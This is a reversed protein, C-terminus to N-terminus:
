ETNNECQSIDTDCCDETFCYWDMDRKDICQGQACIEDYGCYDVLYTTKERTCRSAYTGPNLCKYKVYDNVVHGNKSCYLKSYHDLGCTADRSCTVDSLTTTTIRPKPTEYQATPLTTVTTSVMKKLCDGQGDICEFDGTCKKIFDSDTIQVCKANPSGGGFCTSKITEVLISDGNCKYIGTSGSIGCDSDTNCLPPRYSENESPPTTDNGIDRLALYLVGSLLFATVLIAVKLDM